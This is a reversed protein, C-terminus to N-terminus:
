NAHKKIKPKFFTLAFAIKQQYFLLDNKLYQPFYEVYIGSLSDISLMFSEGFM